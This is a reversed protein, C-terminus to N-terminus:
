QVIGRYALIRGSVMRIVSFFVIGVVGITIMGVITDAYNMLNYSQWTFYGIGYKGSIMEAAIVSMWSTGIGITLGTLIDPVASPLYVYRVLQCKTVHMSRAADVLSPEVNQTGAITNVLIPFFGGMFTIFVISGEITPFLLISVPIWTIQPIPRMLEFIPLLFLRGPRSLGIVLGFFVGLPLALACGVLIRLCSYGVHRYYESNQLLAIGAQLVDAPAPLNGFMLPRQVNFAVLFHWIGISVAISVIACFIVFPQSLPHKQVVM